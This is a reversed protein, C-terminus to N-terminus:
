AITRVVGRGLPGGHGFLKSEGVSWGGRHLADNVGRWLCQPREDGVDVQRRAIRGLELAGLPKVTRGLSCDSGLKCTRVFMGNNARPLGFARDRHAVSRCTEFPRDFTASARGCHPLEGEFRGVAPREDGLVALDSRSSATDVRRDFFHRFSLVVDDGIPKTLM